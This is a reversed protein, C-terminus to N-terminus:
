SELVHNAKHCPNNSCRVDLCLGSHSNIRCEECLAGASSNNPDFGLSLLKIFMKTTFTEGTKPRCKALEHSGPNLLPDTECLTRACPIAM